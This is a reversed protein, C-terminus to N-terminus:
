LLAIHGRITFQEDGASQGASSGDHVLNETPAIYAEGPAIRCRVVPIEPFRQMFQRGILTHRRPLQWGPGMEQVLLGAINSLLFPLFLLYRDSQGINVCVRNTALHLSGIELRDWIDVHLGIYRGIRNDVTVTELNAPSRNPGTCHFPARLECISLLPLVLNTELAEPTGSWIENRKAASFDSPLKVVAVSTAMDHPVETTVLSQLENQTPPRWPERPLRAGQEYAPGDSRDATEQENAARTGNSLEVRDAPSDCAPSIHITIRGGMLPQNLLWPEAEDWRDDDANVM